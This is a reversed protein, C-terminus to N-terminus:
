PFRARFDHVQHAPAAAAEAQHQAIRAEDAKRQREGRERMAEEYEM